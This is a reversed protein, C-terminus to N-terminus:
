GLGPRYSRQGPRDLSVVDDSVGRRGVAGEARHLGAHRGYLMLLSLAGIAVLDEQGCRRRARSGSPRLGSPSKSAAVSGAGVFQVSWTPSLKM